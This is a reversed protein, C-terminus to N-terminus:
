EIMRWAGQPPPPLEGEKETLTIRWSESPKERYQELDVERIEPIKAYNIRGRSYIKAVKGEFNKCKDGGCLKILEDKCKQMEEEGDDRVAKAAAYGRLALRFAKDPREVWPNPDDPAELTLISKYFATEKEILAAIYADNREQKM